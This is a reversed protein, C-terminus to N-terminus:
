QAHRGFRGRPQQGPATADGTPRDAINKFRYPAISYGSIRMDVSRHYALSGQGGSMSYPVGQNVWDNGRSLVEDRSIPGGIVSSGNPSPQTPVM